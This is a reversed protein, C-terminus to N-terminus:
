SWNKQEQIQYFTLQVTGTCKLDLLLSILLSVKTNENQLIKKAGLLYLNQKHEDHNLSWLTMSLMGLVIVLGRCFPM